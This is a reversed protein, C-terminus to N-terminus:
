DHGHVPCLIRLSGFELVLESRRSRYPNRLSLPVLHWRDVIRAERGLVSHRRVAM